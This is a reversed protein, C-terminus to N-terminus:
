EDESHDVPKASGAAIWRMLVIPIISGFVIAEKLSSAYFSSTSEILGILLAGLVAAPYGVFGGFTAGVFGKLGTMFGSDYYFTITPSILVGTLAAIATALLFANAGAAHTRIGVLRAGERNMATAKLAKGSITREFFFYLAASLAAAALVMMLMQSSITVDGIELDSKLFPETRLGEPGFCLLAVGSLAFHLAVSVTLLLLVSANAIPQYVIRYLLPGIPLVILIALLSQLSPPLYGASLLAVASPALPLVLWYLTARLFRHGGGRRLLQVIELLWAVLALVLVLWVTGPRQHLQFYGLTLAAYAVLDGFPVFIIRTSNFILVMGLAMMAYIAGSAIGDQGVLLAIDLDM